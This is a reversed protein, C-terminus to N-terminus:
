KFLKKLEILLKIAKETKDGDIIFNFRKRKLLISPRRRKMRPRKSSIILQFNKVVELTLEKEICMMKFENENGGKDPHLIKSLEKFQKEINEKSFPPKFYKM